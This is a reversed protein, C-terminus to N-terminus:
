TTGLRFDDVKGFTLSGREEPDDYQQENYM